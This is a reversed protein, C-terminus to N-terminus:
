CSTLIVDFGTSSAIQTGEVVPREILDADRLVARNPVVHIDKQDMKKGDTIFISMKYIVYTYLGYTAAIPKAVYWSPLLAKQIILM